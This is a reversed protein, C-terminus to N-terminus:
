FLFGLVSTQIELSTTINTTNLAFAAGLHNYFLLQPRVMTIGNINTSAFRAAVTLGAGDVTQLIISALLFGDAAASQDASDFIIANTTGTSIKAGGSMATSADTGTPTNTLSTSANPLKAMSNNATTVVGARGFSHQLTGAVNQIKFSFCQLVRGAAIPPTSLKGM